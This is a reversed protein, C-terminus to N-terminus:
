DLNDTNLVTFSSPVDPTGTDEATIFIRKPKLPTVTKFSAKLSNSIFGRATKLQGLNKAQNEDNYMWVVYTERPPTLKKPEALDNIEIEIEYNNNKDKKVKAKGAAAPVVSSANFHATQACSALCFIIIAAFIPTKFSKANLLVQKM